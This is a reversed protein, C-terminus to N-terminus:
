DMTLCGNWYFLLYFLTDTGSTWGHHHGHHQRSTRAGHDLDISTLELLKTYRYTAQLLLESLFTESLSRDQTQTGIQRQHQTDDPSVLRQYRQQQLIPSSGWLDPLACSIEQGGALLPSKM